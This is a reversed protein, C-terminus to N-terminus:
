GTSDLDPFSDKFLDRLVHPPVGGPVVGWGAAPDDEALKTQLPQAGVVVVGYVWGYDGDVGVVVDTATEASGTFVFDRYASFMPLDYTAERRAQLEVRFQTGPILLEDLRLWLHLDHTSERGNVGSWRLRAVGSPAVRRLPNLPRSVVECHPISQGAQTRRLSNMRVPIPEGSATSSRNVTRIEGLGGGRGPVSAQGPCLNDALSGILLLLRRGSFPTTMGTDSNIPHTSSAPSTSSTTPRNTTVSIEPREALEALFM